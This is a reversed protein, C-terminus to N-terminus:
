RILPYPIDSVLSCDLRVPYSLAYFLFGAWNHKSPALKPALRRDTTMEM